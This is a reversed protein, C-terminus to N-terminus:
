FSELFSVVSINLVGWPKKVAEFDGAPMLLKIEKVLITKMPKGKYEPLDRNEFRQFHKNRQGPQEDSIGLITGPSADNIQENLRYRTIVDLFTLAM